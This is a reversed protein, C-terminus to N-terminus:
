VKLISQIDVYGLRGISSDSLKIIASVKERTGLDPIFLQFGDGWLKQGNSQWLFCGLIVEEDKNTAYSLIFRHHAYIRTWINM